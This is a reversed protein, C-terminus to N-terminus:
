SLALVDVKWAAKVIAHLRPDSIQADECTVEQRPSVLFPDCEM